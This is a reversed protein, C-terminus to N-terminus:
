EIGIFFWGAPGDHRVKCDRTERTMGGLGNRARYTMRVVYTTSGPEIIWPDISEWRVSEPERLMDAVIRQCAKGAGSALDAPSDSGKSYLLLAAAGLVAPVLLWASLSKRAAAASLTM